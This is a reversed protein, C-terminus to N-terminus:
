MRNWYDIMIVLLDPGYEKLQMRVRETMRLQLETSDSYYEKLRDFYKKGPDPVYGKKGQESYAEGGGDKSTYDKLSQSRGVETAGGHIREVHPLFDKMMRNEIPNLVKLVEVSV